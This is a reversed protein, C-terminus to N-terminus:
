IKCEHASTNVYLVYTVPAPLPVNFFYKQCLTDYILSISSFPNCLKQAPLLCINERRCLVRSLPSSICTHTCEHVHIQVLKHMLVIVIHISVFTCVYIHAHTRMHSFDKELLMLNSYGKAKTNLYVCANYCALYWSPLAHMCIFSFGKKWKCVTVCNTFHSVHLRILHFSYTPDNQWFLSKPSLTKFSNQYNSVFM